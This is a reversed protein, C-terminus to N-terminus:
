AASGAIRDVVKRATTPRGRGYGTDNLIRNVRVIERRARKSGEAYSDMESQASRIAAEARDLFWDRDEAAVEEMCARDHAVLMAEAYGLNRIATTLRASIKGDNALLANLALSARQVQHSPLQRISM